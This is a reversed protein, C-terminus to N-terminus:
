YGRNAASTNEMTFLVILSYIGITTGLGIVPHLLSLVSLIIGAIRAWEAGNLLGWAVIFHPVAFVGILIFVLGGIGVFGVLGVAPHGTIGGGIIAGLIGILAAAFIAGLICLGGLLIHLWAVVKVHTQVSQM